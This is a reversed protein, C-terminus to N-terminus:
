IRMSLIRRVRPASTRLRGPIYNIELPSATAYTIRLRYSSQQKEMASTLM